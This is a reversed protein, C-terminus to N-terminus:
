RTVGRAAQRLVPTLLRRRDIPQAPLVEECLRRPVGLPDGPDGGRYSSRGVPAGDHLGVTGREAGAFAAIMALELLFKLTLNAAKM